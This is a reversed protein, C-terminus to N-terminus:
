RFYLKQYSIEGLLLNCKLSFGLRRMDLYMSIAFKLIDQQSSMLKGNKKM